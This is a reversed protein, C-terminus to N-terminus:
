KKDKEKRKKENIKQKKHHKAITKRLNAKSRYKGM